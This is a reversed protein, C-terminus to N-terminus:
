LAFYRRAADRFLEIAQDHLRYTYSREYGLKDAVRVMSHCNIYRYMLLDRYCTDPMCMIIELAIKADKAFQDRAELLLDSIESMRGTIVEELRSKNNRDSRRISPIGCRGYAAYMAYDDIASQYEDIRVRSQRISRLFDLPDTVAPHQLTLPM